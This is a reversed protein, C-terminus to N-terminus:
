SAEDEDPGTGKPRTPTAFTEDTFERLDESDVTSVISKKAKIFVDGTGPTANFFVSQPVQAGKELMEREKKTPNKAMETPIRAAQHTEPDPDVRSRFRQAKIKSDRWLSLLNGSTWDLSDASKFYIAENMEDRFANRYKHWFAVCCLDFERTTSGVPVTKIVKDGRREFPYLRELIPFFEADVKLFKDHGSRQTLDIMVVRDNKFVAGDPFKQPPACFTVASLVDDLTLDEGKDFFRDIVNFADAQKRTYGVKDAVRDRAYANFDAQSKKAPWRSATHWYWDVYKAAEFDGCQFDMLANWLGPVAFTRIFPTNPNAADLTVGKTPTTM